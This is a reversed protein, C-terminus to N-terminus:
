LIDVREFVSKLRQTDYGLMKLLERGANLLYIKPDKHLMAVTRLAAATLEEGNGDPCNLTKNLFCTGATIGVIEDEECIEVPLHLKAHVPPYYLRYNGNESFGVVVAIFESRLLSFVQPQEYELVKIDKFFAKAKGVGDLSGTYAGSVIGYIRRAGDQVRVFSGYAPVQHYKVSEAVFQDTKSEIVEGIL